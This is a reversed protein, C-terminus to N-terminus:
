YKYFARMVSGTLPANIFVISDGTLTYDEGGATVFMGNLFLKLSTAPNPTNALTFTKNTGNITGSPTENSIEIGLLNAITIKKTVPTGAVDDVIAIIDADDPTAALETLETIKQDAM